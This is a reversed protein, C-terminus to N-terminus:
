LSQPYFSFYFFSFTGVNSPVNFVNEDEPVKRNELTCLRRFVMPLRKVDADDENTGHRWRRSVM